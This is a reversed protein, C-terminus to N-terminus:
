SLSSSQTAISLSASSTLKSMSDSLLFLIILIHYPLFFLLQIFVTYLSHSFMHHYYHSVIRHLLYIYQLVQSFIQCKFEVLQNSKMNTIITLSIQSHASYTKLRLVYEDCECNNKIILFLSYAVLVLM